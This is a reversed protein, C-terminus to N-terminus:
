AFNMIVGVKITNGVEATGVTHIEKRLDTYSKVTKDGRRRRVYMCLRPQVQSLLGSNDKWSKNINSMTHFGPPGM